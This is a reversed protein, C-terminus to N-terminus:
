PGHPGVGHADPGLPRLPLGAPIKGPWRLILPVHLAYHYLFVGHQREGHELLGEGHDGAVAV